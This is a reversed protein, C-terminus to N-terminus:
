IAVNDTNMVGHILGVRMWNVVLDMQLDMVKQLLSLAPNENQAIEPFLRKITYDTLARLDEPTGFYSAYEFTGIRIHSKMIRTLVGGQNASERYVPWETKVVALSGSTPIKL